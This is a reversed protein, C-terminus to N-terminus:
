YCTGVCTVAARNKAEGGDLLRDKGFSAVTMNAACAGQAVLFQYAASARREGLALNYERTGRNDCHGGIMLKLEPYKKMWAAQQELVTRAEATLTSSDYGFYVRDGISNQLEKKARAEEASLDPVDDVSNLSSSMDDTEDTSKDCASLFVVAAIALLSKFKM